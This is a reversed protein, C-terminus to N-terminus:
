IRKLETYFNQHSGLALLTLILIKEEFTYALLTLQKNMKFKYVRVGVLDGTKEEGITYDDIIENIAKDLDKKQNKHLKKVANAFTNTQLIQM